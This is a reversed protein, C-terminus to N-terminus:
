GTTPRPTEAPPRTLYASLVRTLQEAADALENHWSPLNAYLAALEPSRMAASKGEKARVEAIQRRAAQVRAAAAGLKSNLMKICTVTRDIPPKKPRSAKTGKTPKCAAVAERTLALPVDGADTAARLRESLEALDDDTFQKSM